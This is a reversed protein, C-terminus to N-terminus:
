KWSPRNGITSPIDWRQDFIPDLLCYSRDSHFRVIHNLCIDSPARVPSQFRVVKSAGNNSLAYAHAGNFCGAHCLHKRYRRRFISQYPKPDPFLRPAIHSVTRLGMLKLRFPVPMRLNNPNYGLYVLDWDPPLQALAKAFTPLHEDIISIDDELILASSLKRDLIQQAAVRHSIACGIEAPTMEARYLSPDHSISGDADIEAPLKKRYDCASLIEFNVGRHTLLDSTERRRQISDDLSIVYCADFTENLYELGALNM